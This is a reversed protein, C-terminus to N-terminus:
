SCFEWRAGIGEMEQLKKGSFQWSEVETKLKLFSEEVRMRKEVGLM